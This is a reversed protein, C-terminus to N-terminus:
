CEQRTRILPKREPAFWSVDLHEALSGIISPGSICDSTVLFHKRRWKLPELLDSVLHVERLELVWAWSVAHAMSVEDRGIPYAWGKPLKDRDYRQWPGEDNM